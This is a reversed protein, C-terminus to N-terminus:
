ARDSEISSPRSRSVRGAREYVTEFKRATAEWTFDDRVLRRGRSALEAARGPQDYLQEIAARLAGVDGPPCLVGNHGHEVLEGTGGVRTAILPTGVAMASLVALSFNEEHSPLIAASSETLLRGLGRHDLWGHLEVKDTLGLRDRRRAIAGRYSGRGALRIRPAKDGLDRLALLLTEIGKARDFRGFFLAPRTDRGPMPQWEFDLFEPPVGNHVPHIRDPPVRYARQILEGGYRSPPACVDAGHLAVGLAAYKGYGSLLGIARVLSRPPAFLLRPLSPYRPTVVLGFRRHARERPLRAAEEGQAHVIAAEGLALERRIVGAVTWATLVRLPAGIHSKYDPLAAWRLRYPLAPPPQVLDWPTKTFVVTVDHGRGALASGLYHTSRQGGGSYASWPSYNCTLFIRMTPTGARM